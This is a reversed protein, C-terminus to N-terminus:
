TAANVIPDCFLSRNNVQASILPIHFDPGRTRRLNTTKGALVCDMREATSRREPEIAPLIKCVEGAARRYELLEQGDCEDDGLTSVGKLPTPRTRCVQLESPRTQWIVSDIPQRCILTPSTM